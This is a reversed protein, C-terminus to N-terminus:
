EDTESVEEENDKSFLKRIRGWYGRLALLGGLFAAVLLQILYSGSGPDLYAPPASVPNLDSILLIGASLFLGISM